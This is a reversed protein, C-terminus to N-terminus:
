QFISDNNGLFGEVEELLVRIDVSKSLFSDAGLALIRAMNEQSDMGSMAIIRTQGLEKKEKIRKCVEFGDIGPMFLDLIVLDPILESVKIGADFGDAATEVCINMRSLRASIVSHIQPDDDVILVTKHNDAIKQGLSVNEKLIRDVEEKLIRHHGGPTVLAKIHGSKVWGWLTTRSVGSLRAADPISYFKKTKNM